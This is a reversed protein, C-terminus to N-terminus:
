KAAEVLARVDEGSDVGIAEVLPSKTDTDWHIGARDPWLGSQEFPTSLEGTEKRRCLTLTWCQLAQRGKPTFLSPGRVGVVIWPGQWAGDKDVTRIVQMPRIAFVKGKPPDPEAVAAIKATVNECDGQNASALAASFCTEEKPQEAFRKGTDVSLLLHALGEIQAREIEGIDSLQPFGLAEKLRMGFALASDGRLFVGPWDKGFQVVGTEVRERQASFKRIAPKPKEPSPPRVVAPKLWAILARTSPCEDTRRLWDVAACQTPAEHRALEVLHGESLFGSLYGAIADPHCKLLSLSNYITRSSKGVKTALAHVAGQGEGFVGTSLLQRYGNAAEIANLDRRQVNEIGQAVMADLESLDQIEAKFAVGALQCARWRCEGIVLEYRGPSLPHPRVIGAQKQGIERISDALEAIYTPDFDKRPNTGSPDVQGTPLLVLEGLTANM